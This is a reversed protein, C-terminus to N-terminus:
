IRATGGADCAPLFSQQTTAESVHLVVWCGNLWVPQDIFVSQNTFSSQCAPSGLEGAWPLPPPLTPTFCAAASIAQHEGASIGKAVALAMLALTM